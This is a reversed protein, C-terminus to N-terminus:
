EDTNAKTEVDSRDVEAESIDEVPPPTPKIPEEKPEPKSTNEYNVRRQEKNPMKSVESLNEVNVYVIEKPDMIKLAYHPVVIFAVFISALFIAMLARIFYGNKIKNNTRNKSAADSYQSKLFDEVEEGIDIPVGSEEKYKRLETIYNDIKDPRSIYRYKYFFLCRFLYYFAFIIILLLVSLLIFFIIRIANIPTFNTNNIFYSAAGIIVILATYALSLRSNIADKRQHEFEYAGRFMEYIDKDNLM